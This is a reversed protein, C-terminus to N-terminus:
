SPSAVSSMDSQALRLRVAPRTRRPGPPRCRGRTSPTRSRVGGIRTSLRSNGYLAPSVKTAAPGSPPRSPRRDVREVVVARSSRASGGDRSTRPGRPARRPRGARRGRRASPRPSSGSSGLVREALELSPTQSRRPRRRGGLSADRRGGAPAAIPHGHELARVVRPGHSRRGPVRGRVGLLERPRRRRDAVPADPSRSRRRGSM